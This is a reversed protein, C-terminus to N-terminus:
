EIIPVSAELGDKVVRGTRDVLAYRVRLYLARPNTDGHEELKFARARVRPEWRAAEQVMVAALELMGDTNNQHRLLHLRSGFDTRWPLEGSSVASDAKTGLVQVLCAKVLAEGTATALDNKQDRRFPRLLGRGLFTPLGQLANAAAQAASVEAAVPSAAVPDPLLTWSLPTPM